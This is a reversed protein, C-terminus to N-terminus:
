VCVRFYESVSECMSVRACMCLRLIHSLLFVQLITIAGSITADEMINIYLLSEHKSIYCISQELTYHSSQQRIWCSPDISSVSM